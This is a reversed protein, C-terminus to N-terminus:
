EQVEDKGQVSCQRFLTYLKAHDPICYSTLCLKIALIDALRLAMWPLRGRHKVVGLSRLDSTVLLHVALLGRASLM